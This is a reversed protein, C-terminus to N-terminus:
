YGRSGYKIIQQVNEALSRICFPELPKPQGFSCLLPQIIQQFFITFSRQGIDFGALQFRKLLQLMYDPQELHLQIPFTPIALLSNSESLKGEKKPPTSQFVKTTVLARTEPSIDGSVQGQNKQLDSKV